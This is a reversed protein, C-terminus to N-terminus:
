YLFLHDATARYTNSAHKVGTKYRVPGATSNNTSLFAVLYLTANRSAAIANLYSDLKIGALVACIFIELPTRVFLLPIHM